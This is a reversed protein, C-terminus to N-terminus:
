GVVLFFLGVIERRRLHSQSCQNCALPSLFPDAKIRCASCGFFPAGVAPNGVLLLLEVIHIVTQLVLQVLVAITGMGISGIRVTLVSADLDHIAVCCFVSWIVPTGVACVFATSRHILMSRMATSRHILVACASLSAIGSLLMVLSLQSATCLVLVWELNCSHLSMFTQLAMAAGIRAVFGLPFRDGSGLGPVNIGTM